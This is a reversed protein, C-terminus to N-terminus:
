VGLTPFGFIFLLIIHLGFVFVIFLAHFFRQLCFMRWLFWSGSFVLRLLEESEFWSLWFDRHWSKGLGCSFISKLGIMPMM